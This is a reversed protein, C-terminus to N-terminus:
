QLFLIKLDQHYLNLMDEIKKKLFIQVTCLLLLLLMIM